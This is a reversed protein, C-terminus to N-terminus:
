TKKQLGTSTWVRLKSVAVHFGLDEGVQSKHSASSSTWSSCRAIKWQVCGWVTDRQLLYTDKNESCGLLQVSQSFAKGQLGQNFDSTSWMARLPAKCHFEFRFAGCGFLRVDVVPVPRSAVLALSRRHYEVYISPARLGFNHVDECIM